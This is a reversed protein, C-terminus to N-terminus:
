DTTAYIQDTHTNAILGGYSFIGFYYFLPVFKVDTVYLYLIWPVTKIIVEQTRTYIHINICMVNM